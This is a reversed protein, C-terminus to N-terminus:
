VFQYERSSVIMRILELILEKIKQKSSHGNSEISDIKSAVELLSEKTGKSVKLPGLTDLCKDVLQDSTISDHHAALIHDVINEVGPNELNGLHDSAFNVRDM